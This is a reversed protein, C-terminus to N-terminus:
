LCLEDSRGLTPQKHWEDNKITTIIHEFKEGINNGIKLGTPAIYDTSENHLAAAAVIKKKLFKVINFCLLTM